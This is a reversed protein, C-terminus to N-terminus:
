FRLENDFGRDRKLVIAEDIQPLSEKLDYFYAEDFYLENSLDTRTRAEHHQSKFEILSDKFERRRRADMVDALLITGGPELLGLMKKIVQKFYIPGPFFQATSAVIILEFRGSTLVDIEHAMGTVLEV